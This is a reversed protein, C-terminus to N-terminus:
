GTYVGIEVVRAKRLLAEAPATASVSIMMSGDGDYDPTRVLNEGGVDYDRLQIIGGCSIRASFPGDFGDSIDLPGSDHEHTDVEHGHPPDGGAATTLSTTIFPIEVELDPRAAGSLPVPADHWTLDDGQNGLVTVRASGTLQTVPEIWRRATPDSISVEASIHYTQPHGLFKFDVVGRDDTEYERPIGPLQRALITASRHYDGYPLGVWVTHGVQCYVSGTIRRLIHARGGPGAIEVDYLPTAADVIGLPLRSRVVGPVMAHGAAVDASIGRGILPLLPNRNTM